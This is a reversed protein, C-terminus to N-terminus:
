SSQKWNVSSLLDLVRPLFRPKKHFGMRQTRWLHRTDRHRWCSIWISTLVRRWQSAARRRLAREGPAVVVAVFSHVGRLSWHLRNSTNIATVTVTAGHSHAKWVLTADFVFVQCLSHTACDFGTWVTVDRSRNKIVVFTNYSIWHLHECAAIAVVSNFEM